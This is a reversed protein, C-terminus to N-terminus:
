HLANIPEHNLALFCVELLEICGTDHMAGLLQRPWNFVFGFYKKKLGLFYFQGKISFTYMYKYAVYMCTM